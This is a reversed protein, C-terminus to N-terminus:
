ITEFPDIPEIRAGKVGWTTGPANAPLSKFMLDQFLEAFVPDDNLLKYFKFSVNVMDQIRNSVIHDFTLRM